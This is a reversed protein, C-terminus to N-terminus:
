KTEPFEKEEKKSPTSIEIECCGKPSDSVLKGFIAGAVAAAARGYPKAARPCGFKNLLSNGATYGVATGLLTCYASKLLGM